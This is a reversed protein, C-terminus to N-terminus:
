VYPAIGGESHRLNGVQVPHWHSGRDLHTHLVSSPEQHEIEHLGDFPKCASVFLPAFSSVGIYAEAPDSALVPRERQRQRMTNGRIGSNGVTPLLVTKSRRGLQNIRVTLLRRL